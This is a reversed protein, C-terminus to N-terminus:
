TTNDIKFRHTIFIKEYSIQKIVLKFKYNTSYISNLSTTIVDFLQTIEQYM